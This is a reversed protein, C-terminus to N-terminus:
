QKVMDFKEFIKDGKIIGVSGTSDSTVRFSYILKNVKQVPENNIWVKEINCVIVEPLEIIQYYKGTISESYVSIKTPKGDLDVLYQNYEYQWIGLECHFFVETHFDYTTKTYTWLANHPIHRHQGYLSGVIFLIILFRKM